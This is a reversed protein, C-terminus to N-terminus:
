NHVLETRIGSGAGPFGRLFRPRKLKKPNSERLGASGLCRWRRRRPRRPGSPSEGHPSPRCGRPSSGRSWPSGGGGSSSPMGPDAPPTGAVKALLAECLALLQLVVVSASRQALLANRHERLVHHVAARLDEDDRLDPFRCPVALARAYPLRQTAYVGWDLAGKPAPLDAETVTFAM